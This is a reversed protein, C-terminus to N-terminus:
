SPGTGIVTCKASSNAPRKAASRQQSRRSWTYIITLYMKYPTKKTKLTNAGSLLQTKMLMKKGRGKGRKQAILNAQHLNAIYLYVGHCVFPHSNLSCWVLKHEASCAPFYITMGEPRHRQLCRGKKNSMYLFHSKHCEEVNQGSRSVISM